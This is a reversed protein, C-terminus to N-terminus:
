QKTSDDRGGPQEVATCHLTGGCVEYKGSETIRWEINYEADFGDAPKGYNELQGSVYWGNADEGDRNVVKYQYKGGEWALPYREYQNYYMELATKLQRLESRVLGDRRERRAHLGGNVVGIILVILVFIIIGAEVVAIKYESNQSSTM